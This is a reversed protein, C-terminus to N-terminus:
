HPPPRNGELFEEAFRTADFRPIETLKLFENLQEQSVVIRGGFKQYSILRSRIWRRVTKPSVRLKESLEDISYFLMLRQRGHRLREIMM